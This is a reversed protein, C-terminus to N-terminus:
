EDYRWVDQSIMELIKEGRLEGASVNKVLGAMSFEARCKRDLTEHDPLGAHAAVASSAQSVLRELEAIARTPEDAGGGADAAEPAGEGGGQAWSRAGSAALGLSLVVAM